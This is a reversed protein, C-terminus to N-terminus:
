LTHGCIKSLKRKIKSIAESAGPEQHCNNQQSYQLLAMYVQGQMVPNYATLM